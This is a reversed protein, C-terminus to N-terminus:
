GCRGLDMAFLNTLAPNRNSPAATNGIRLRCNSSSLWLLPSACTIRSKTARLFSTEASSRSCHCLSNGRKLSVLRYKKLALRYMKLADFGGALVRQFSPGQCSAFTRGCDGVDAGPPLAGRFPGWVTTPQGVSSNSLLSPLQGRRCGSKKSSPAVPM